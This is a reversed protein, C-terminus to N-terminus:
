NRSNEYIATLMHIFEKPSNGTYKRFVLNFYKYDSFGCCSAIEKVATKPSAIMQEIAKHIRYNTLYRNFTIGVVTKFNSNLFTESYNLQKILDKMQIRSAYQKAVYELMAQVIENKTDIQFSDMRYKKLLNDAQASNNKVSHVLRQKVIAEKVADLLEEREIPKSLYRVVGLQIAKKAYDFRSSGSIIIISLKKMEPTQELMHLGDLIPINIDVVAIDPQLEQIIKMGDQGNDAEGVVTCDYMEWPISYMLGKRIVLEDEIIVVKYM